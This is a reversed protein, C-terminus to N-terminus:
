VSAKPCRSTSVPAASAITSQSRFGQSAATVRTSAASAPPTQQTAPVPLRACARGSRRRRRSPRPWRPLQRLARRRRGFVRWRGPRGIPAVSLARAAGYPSAERVRGRSVGTMPRRALNARPAGQASHDRGAEPLAECACASAGRRRARFRVPASGSVGNQLARRLAWSDDVVSGRVSHGPRRRPRGRRRVARVVTRSHWSIVCRHSGGEVIGSQDEVGAGFSSASATPAALLRVSPPLCM